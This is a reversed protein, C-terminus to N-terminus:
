FGAFIQVCHVATCRVCTDTFKPDIINIRHGTSAWWRNSLYEETETPQEGEILNEGLHNYQRNNGLFQQSTKEFGDHSFDRKIADLREQAYPCLRENHALPSLKSGEYGTRKRNVWLTVLDGDFPEVTKAELNTSTEVPVLPETAIVKQNTSWLSYGVILAFVGLALYTFLNKM